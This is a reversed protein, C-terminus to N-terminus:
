VGLYWDGIFSEQLFTQLSDYMDPLRLSIATLSLVLKMVPEAPLDVLTEIFSKKM